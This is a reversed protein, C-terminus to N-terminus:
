HSSSCTEWRGWLDGALRVWCSRGLEGLSLCFFWQTLGRRSKWCSSPVTHCGGREDLPRWLQKEAASIAKGPRRIGLTLHTFAYPLCDTSRSSESTISPPLRWQFGGCLAEQSGGSLCLMKIPWFFVAWLILTAVWVAAPADSSSKINAASTMHGQAKISHRDAEKSVSSVLHKTVRPPHFLSLKHINIEGKFPSSPSGHHGLHISAAWGPM